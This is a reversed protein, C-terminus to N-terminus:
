GPADAPPDAYPSARRLLDLAVDLNLDALRRFSIVSKGVKVRGLEDSRTEALYRGDEVANLYLSIYNKQVALGILYWTADKGSSRPSTSTGYGIIRQDTGGWLRQQWLRVELQPVTARIADHLRGVDERRDEPLTALFDTVEDPQSPM